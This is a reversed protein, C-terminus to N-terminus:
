KSTLPRYGKWDAPATNNRNNMYNLIVRSPGDGDFGEANTAMWKDCWNFEATAATWDGQLYLNVAHKHRQIFDAGVHRRLYVLDVDLEMVDSTDNEPTMFQLDADGHSQYYAFDHHENSHNAPKTAVATISPRQKAAEKGKPANVPAVQGGYPKKGKATAAESPQAAKNAAFSMSKHMRVPVPRFKQDQRADYTFVAIPHESGKVTVVDLKRCVDQVEPSLLDYLTQSFLLPVGFQKSSTELRASMNVHPSLYTADVKQISGVAGEIAWGAHLGFGMRVKFPGDTTLRADNRYDLIPKSRNLEAIIKLYGILAKDALRDIGPVRRLDVVKEPRKKLPKKNPNILDKLSMGTEKGGSTLKLITKEDGIRWIMLFANGLNKNSQGGWDHVSSHVIEAITNVFTLVDQGMHQNVDDFHHIDCFGFVAYIRVGPILPNIVSSNDAIDLNAKIIGAGAEGFGVRLLSTIKEITSELLMTEYEGQGSGHQFQLPQLPDKSVAEVMNMMREIPDLVLRQADNTFVVSGAVLMISVFIILLIQNVNRDYEEFWLDFTASVEYNDGTMTITDLEKPTSGTRRKEVVDTNEWFSSYDTSSDAHIDTAWTATYDFDMITAPAGNSAQTIEVRVLNPAHKRFTDMAAFRLKNLQDPDPDTLEVFHLLSGVATNREENLIVLQLFPVVFLMCLVITIVRRTISDSLLGGVKSQRSQYLARQTAIDDYSVAGQRVLDLLEAELRAARRREAQIKYIKVLRVLRVMRVVRATKLTTQNDHDEYLSDFGFAESIAPVEPFMSLIALVDLVFFFSLFYGECEWPKFSYHYTKSWTVLVLEVIFAAFCITTMVVFGTDHQKDVALIRVENGFLVFLTMSMMLDDFSFSFEIAASELFWRTLDKINEYTIFEWFNKLSRKLNFKTNNIAQQRATENDEEEEEELIPDIKEDSM